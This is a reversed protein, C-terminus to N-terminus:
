FDEEESESTKRWVNDVKEYVEGVEMWSGTPSLHPPIRQSGFGCKVKVFEGSIFNITADCTLSFSPHGTDGFSYDGGSCDTLLGSTEEWPQPLYQLSEEKKKFLSKFKDKMRSM